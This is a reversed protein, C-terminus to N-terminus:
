AARRPAHRDNSLPVPARAQSLLQLRRLADILVDPVAHVMLMYPGGQSLQLILRLLRQGCAAEASRADSESNM